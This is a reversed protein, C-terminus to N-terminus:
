SSNMFFVKFIMVAKQCKMFFRFFIMVHEHFILDIKM